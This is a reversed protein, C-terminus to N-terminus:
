AAARRLRSAIDTLWQQQKATPERWRTSETLSAIFSQERANLYNFRMAALRLDIRWDGAHREASPVAPALQAALDHWDRGAAGLTRGIARAAGLVEGDQDSGLLPILLAIKSPLALATVGGLQERGSM